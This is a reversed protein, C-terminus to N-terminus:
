WLRGGSKAAAKSANGGKGCWVLTSTSTLTPTPTSNYYVQEQEQEQEMVMEYLQQEIHQEGVDHDFKTHEEVQEADLYEQGLQLELSIMIAIPLLDREAIYPPHM